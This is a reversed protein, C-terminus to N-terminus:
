CIYNFQEEDSSGSELDDPRGLVAKYRFRYMRKTNAIVYHDSGEFLENMNTLFVFMICCNVKGDGSLCCDTRLELLRTNGFYKKMGVYFFLKSLVMFGKDATFKHYLNM